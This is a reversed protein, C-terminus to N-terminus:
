GEILKCSSLEIEEAEVDIPKRDMGRIKELIAVVNVSLEGSVHVKEEAGLNRRIVQDIQAETGVLSKLDQPEVLEGIQSFTKEVTELRKEMRLIM